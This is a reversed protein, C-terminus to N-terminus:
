AAGGDFKKSDIYDSRVEDFNHCEDETEECCNNYGYCRICEKCTEGVDFGSYLIENMTIMIKKRRTEQFHQNKPVYYTCDIVNDEGIGDGFEIDTEYAPCTPYSLICTDCLNDKTTIEREM